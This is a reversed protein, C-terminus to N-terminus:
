AGSRGPQTAVPAVRSSTTWSIRLAMAKRCRFGARVRRFRAPASSRPTPRSTFPRWLATIRFAGCQLPYGSPESPPAAGAFAPNVARYWTRSALNRTTLRSARCRERSPVTGCRPSPTSQWRWDRETRRPETTLLKVPREIVSLPTQLRLGRMSSSRKRNAWPWESSPRTRARRRTGSGLRGTEYCGRGAQARPNTRRHARSAHRPEDGEGQGYRSSILMVSVSGLQRDSKAM